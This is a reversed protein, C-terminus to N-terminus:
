RGRIGSPPRRSNKAQYDARGLKRPPPGYGHERNQWDLTRAPERFVITDDGLGQRLLDARSTHGFFVIDCSPDYSAARALTMSEFFYTARPANGSIVIKEDDFWRSPYEQQHLYGGDSDCVMLLPSLERTLEEIFDLDGAALVMGRRQLGILWTFTEFDM